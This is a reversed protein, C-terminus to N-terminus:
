DSYVAKNKVVRKKPSSKTAESGRRSSSKGYFSSDGKKRSFRDGERADGRRKFGFSKEGKFNKGSHRSRGEGPQKAGPNLMRDIRKWLYQDSPTIFSLAHGKAGARATRGIRHIYDEPCQPLDYNIVHEIHPIDLGRAAVDTAVLVRFRKQRFANIVRSRKSQRLDGHITDSEYGAKALKTAMKDANHKTKVFVIVAGERQDLQETLQSYKEGESIKLTEQKVNAAPASTPSTAIEIPDVMYRKALNVINRPLTASFLLTQRKESVQELIRDIQISFGMDLMRDTEDLVVYNTQCLKLKRRELHDNIRGPTGVVIRPNNQLQKLQKHMSDGGILVAIKIKSNTGLMKKLESAVQTALERTPTIVIGRSDPCLLLKTILPIGFAGTKGTGTQASGLIDHGAIAKPIAQGQIPTPKLFGNNKLEELLQNPLSLAEFTEVTSM